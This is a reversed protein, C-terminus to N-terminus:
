FPIYDENIVSSSVQPQPMSHDMNQHMNHQMNQQVPHQVQQHVPQHVPQYPMSQVPQHGQMPQKDFSIIKHASNKVEISAFERQVGGQAGQEGHVIDIRISGEVFLKVGKRVHKAAYDSMPGYAKIRHWTTNAVFENSGQKKTYQVTALTFESVSSGNQFRHTKVDSGAHGVLIAKNFM